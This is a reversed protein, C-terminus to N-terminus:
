PKVFTTMHTKMMAAGRAGTNTIPHRMYETSETAYPIIVSPVLLSRQPVYPVQTIHYILRASPSGVNFAM